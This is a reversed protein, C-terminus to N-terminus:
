IKVEKYKFSELWIRIYEPTHKDIRLFAFGKLTKHTTAKLVRTVSRENSGLCRAAHGVSPFLEGDSRIVARWNLTLPVGTQRATAEASLRMKMIERDEATMTKHILRKSKKYGVRSTVVVSMNAKFPESAEAGFGGTLNYGVPAKSNFYGIYFAEKVLLSEETEAIDIVEFDFNDFGYKVLSRALYTNDKKAKVRHEVWRWYACRKTKGIYVKGTVKNTIKYICMPIDADHSFSHLRPRGM